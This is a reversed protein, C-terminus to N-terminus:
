ALPRCIEDLCVNDVLNSVYLVCRSEHFVCEDCWDRALCLIAKGIKHFRIFLTDDLLVFAVLDKECRLITLIVEPHHKVFVWVPHYFQLVFVSPTQRRQINFDGQAYSCLYHSYRLHTPLQPDPTTGSGSKKM